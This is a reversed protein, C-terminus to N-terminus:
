QSVRFDRGKVEKENIEAQDRKAMQISDPLLQSNRFSDICCQSSDVSNIGPHNIHIAPLHCGSFVDAMDM